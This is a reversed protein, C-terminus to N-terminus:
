QPAPAVLEEDDNAVSLLQARSVIGSSSRLNVLMTMTPPPEAPQIVAAANDFAKFDSQRMVSISDSSIPMTPTPSAVIGGILCNLRINPRSSNSNTRRVLPEYLSPM